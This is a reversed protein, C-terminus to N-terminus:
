AMLRRATEESLRRQDEPTLIKGTVHATTEVVLRGIEQKLEQFMRAHEQAAAENAQLIILQASAIAKQTEEEKVRAAAARSEAILRTAEDDAKRLIERRELEAQALSESSKKADDLGQVIKKRREELVKLVPRYAYRQLLVCVISFSIIQAGLHRWDVGFDSAIKQLQGGSDWTALWVLPNM